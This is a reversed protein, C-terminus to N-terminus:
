FSQTLLENDYFLSSLPNLKTKNTVYSKFFCSNHTISVKCQKSWHNERWRILLFLCSFHDLEFNHTSLFRYKWHKMSFAPQRLKFVHRKKLVRIKEPWDQFQSIKLQVPVNRTNIVMYLFPVTLPEVMQSMFLSRMIHDWLSLASLAPLVQWWSCWLMRHLNRPGKIWPTHMRGYNM